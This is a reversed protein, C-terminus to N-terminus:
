GVRRLHLWTDVARFPTDAGSYRKVLMEIQDNADLTIEVSAGANPYGSYNPNGAGATYRLPTGNVAIISEIELSGGGARVNWSVWYRGKEPVVVRTTSPTGIISFGGSQADISLPVSKLATTITLSGSGRMDAWPNSTGKRGLIWVYHRLKITLVRYGVALTSELTGYVVTDETDTDFRVALPSIATITAERVSPLADIRDNLRTLGAALTSWPTENSM